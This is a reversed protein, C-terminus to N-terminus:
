SEVLTRLDGDRRTIKMDDMLELIPILTKRTGGIAQRIDSSTAPGNTSIFDKVSHIANDKVTTLIVAKPSLEAVIDSKILYKLVQEKEPSDIFEVLPPPQLQSDNLLKLIKDALPKLTNPLELNHDQHCLGLEKKTFGKTELSDEILLHLATIYGLKKLTGRFMELPMVTEDPQDKHYALITDTALQLCKNWWDKQFIFDGKLYAKKESVAKQAALTVASQSYSTNKMPQAAPLFGASELHDLLLTRCSGMATLRKELQLKRQESRFKRPNALPTLIIGGALTGQQAGDRLVFTDGCCAAVPEELRLQAFSRAGPALSTQEVLVVRAKVRSTGLHLIVTETNKLDRKTASQAPIERPLRHLEVDIHQTLELGKPAILSGRKIGPKGRQEISVDSLNIGVRTGPPAVESNDKHMQIHRITTSQQVPYCMLEQGVNVESGALSGTIVTGVGTPSFVRDVHLRPQKGKIDHKIKTAAEAIAKKLEEIGEGTHSSVPIIPVDALSTEAIEERLMEQVFEPDECTDIKTLAIIVNNIGLYSLIHLHEESQPMWSDDSAVVFLALDLAGVGSVMNNVFDAHGPVDIVGIEHGNIQLHAFGLEITVGRKQEEPLRDPNTGTLATILSSKGHDIHGATGLIFHM